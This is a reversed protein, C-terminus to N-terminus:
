RFHTDDDGSRGASMLWTSARARDGAVLGLNRQATDGTRVRLENGSVAADGTSM